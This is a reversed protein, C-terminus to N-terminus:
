GKHTEHCEEMMPELSSRMKKVARFVANRIAGSRMGLMQGIEKSTYGEFHRLVFVTRETPSLSRLVKEVQRGVEGSAALRDPRPDMAIMRVENVGEDSIERADRRAKKRMLDMSCNVTIRHLWTSFQSRGDFLHLKRYARLFTEQVVDDADEENGTIRFATRFVRQSERVVLEHFADANGTRALDVLEFDNTAMRIM